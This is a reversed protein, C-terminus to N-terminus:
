LEESMGARRFSESTGMKADFRAPPVPGILQWGLRLPLAAIESIELAALRHPLLPSADVRGTLPGNLRFSLVSM